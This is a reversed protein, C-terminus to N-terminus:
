TPGGISGTSYRLRLASSPPDDQSWPGGSCPWGQAVAVARVKPTHLVFHPDRGNQSSACNRRVRIRSAGFTTDMIAIGDFEGPQRGPRDTTRLDIARSHKAAPSTKASTRGCARGNACTSPVHESPVQKDGNDGVPRMHASHWLLHRVDALAVVAVLAMHVARNRRSGTTGAFPHAQCPMPRCSM